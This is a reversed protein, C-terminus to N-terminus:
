WRGSAKNFVLQDNMHLETLFEKLFFPNGGTKELCIRAIRRMSEVPCFMSESLLSTIDNESLSPLKLEELDVGIDRIHQIYEPLHHSGTEEFSRSCGILLFTLSQDLSLQEILKISDADFFQLDDFCIVLPMDSGALSALFRKLIIQLSKKSETPTIDAVPQQSGIILELDPVVDIIVRSEDGLVTLFFSKWRELARNNESFLLSSILNQISRIIPFFPIHFKQQDTTGLMVRCGRTTFVRSAESLLSTKGTGSEGSILIIKKGKSLVDSQSELINALEGSRGYLKGPISFHTSSDKNGIPFDIITQRNKLEVLCKMLDPTLGSCSQYRDDPSKELLKLIIQSLAKPIGPYKEHPPQPVKAIHCHVLEMPDVTDFLPSGTLLEYLVAGLSYFDTRQDLPIDIRGTQEPSVYGLNGQPLISSLYHPFEKEGTSAISFNTLKLRGTIERYYINEPCINKFIVKQRHIERLGDTLQIAMDVFWVLDELGTKDIASLPPAAIKKLWSSNTNM